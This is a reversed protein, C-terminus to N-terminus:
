TTLNELHNQLRGADAEDRTIEMARAALRKFEAINGSPIATFRATVQIQEM